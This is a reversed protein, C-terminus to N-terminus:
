CLRRWNPAIAMLVIVRFRASPLGSPVNASTDLDNRFAL